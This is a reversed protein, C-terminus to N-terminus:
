DHTTRSRARFAAAKARNGCENMHCWRRSGNRSQDIFVWACNPGPCAKIRNWRPRSSARLLGVVVRSAIFRPLCANEAIELDPSESVRFRLPLESLAAAEIEVHVDNNRLALPRCLRRAAQLIEVDAARGPEGTWPADGAHLSAWWVGVSTPDRLEDSEGHGTNAV